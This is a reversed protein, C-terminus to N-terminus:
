TESGRSTGSRASLLLIAPGDMKQTFLRFLVRKAATFRKRESIGKSIFDCYYDERRIMNFIDKKKRGPIHSSGIRIIQDLFLDICKDRYENFDDETFVDENRLYELAKKRVTFDVSGPDECTKTISGERMRYIYLANDIFEFTRCNKLLELSQLLDEGRQIHFFASYDMSRYMSAKACKLVIANYPIETLARRLVTRKDTVYGEQIHYTPDALGHDTLRKRNFFVCDCQHRIITSHLIELADKELLDDSDLMVIYDGSSYKLATMRTHILGQNAKHFVKIQPFQGAYQDCKAGSSDTSGDDVLIIEYAPYTQDIVSRICEDLYDEVNYVPIQVSFRIDSKMFNM